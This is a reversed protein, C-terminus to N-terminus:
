VATLKTLVSIWLSQRHCKSDIRDLYRCNHKPLSTCCYGSSHFSSVTWIKKHVFHNLRFLSRGNQKEYKKELIQGRNGCLRSNSSILAVIVFNLRSKVCNSTPRTVSCCRSDFWPCKKRASLEVWQELQSGFHKLCRSFIKTEKRKKKFCSRNVRFNKSHIYAFFKKLINMISSDMTVACM